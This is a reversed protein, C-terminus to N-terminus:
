FVPPNIFKVHLTNSTGAVTKITIEYKGALVQRIDKTCMDKDASCGSPGSQPVNFTLSVGDPSAVNLDVNDLKSGVEDIRTLSVINRSQDFSTGKIIVQTSELTGNPLSITEPYIASVFPHSAENTYAPTNLAELPKQSDDGAFKIFYIALLIVCVLVVSIIKKSM